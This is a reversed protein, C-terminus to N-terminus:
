GVRVQVLEGKNEAVVKRHLFAKIIEVHSEFHQTVPMTLFEGGGALAMPLLLQDALHPGVVAESVLY